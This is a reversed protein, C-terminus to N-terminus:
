KMYLGYFWTLFADGYLAAVYIGLALFPAMKIPKLKKGKDERKRTLLRFTTTASSFFIGLFVALIINKWGLMVGGVAMLLVEGDKVSETKRGMILFPVSAAVLGIARQWWLMEIENFLWAAVVGLCLLLVLYTIELVRSGKEKKEKKEEKSSDEDIGAKKRAVAEYDFGKIKYALVLLIGSMMSYIVAQLLRYDISIEQGKTDVGACIIFRIVVLAFAITLVISPVWGANHEKLIKRSVILGLLFGIVAFEVIYIWYDM